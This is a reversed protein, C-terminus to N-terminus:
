ETQGNAGARAARMAQITTMADARAKERAMYNEIRQRDDEKFGAMDWFVPSGGFGEVVSAMKMAGDTRQAQTLTSTSGFVPIINVGDLADLTDGRVLCVAMEMLLKLADKNDDILRDAEIILPENAAELAEGSSPNDHIIGLQSVPVNTDGSFKAALSRMYDIHPQMSGQALQGFQPVSGDETRGVAFINGIYAEWKPTNMFPDEEAGLLYKQPSTFFEASIETRLAERVASDTTSRVAKSIRSQGFPEAETPNYALVVMLAQGLPNLNEEVKLVEGRHQHLYITSESTYLAIKEPQGTGEEEDDYAMIVMGCDVIGLRENWVAASDEASHTTIIAPPEGKLGKSVTVFDCGSILESEVAQRHKRGLHAKSFIKAMLENVEEDNSTYAELTVRMALASVAKKPWGVVTEVNQLFPPISIGLDKLHNEGEYYRRRLRNKNLHKHWIKLLKALKRYDEDKLHGRFIEPSIEAGRRDYITSVM